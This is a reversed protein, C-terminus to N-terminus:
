LGFGVRRPEQSGVILYGLAAAPVMVIQGKADEVTLPAGARLADAVRGALTAPDENVELTLERAVHQIGITIDM